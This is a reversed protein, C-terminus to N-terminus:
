LVDFKKQSSGLEPSDNLLYLVDNKKSTMAKAAKSEEAAKKAEAKARKLAAKSAVESRKIASVGYGIAGADKEAGCRSVKANNCFLHSVVPQRACASQPPIVSKPQSTKKQSLVVRTADYHEINVFSISSSSGSSSAKLLFDHLYLPDAILQTGLIGVECTIPITRRFNSRTNDKNSFSRERSLM